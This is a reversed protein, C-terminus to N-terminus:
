LKCLGESLAKIVRGLMSLSLNIKQAEKLTDGTAESKSVKESGALDVFNLQSDKTNGNILKQHLKLIVVLHSRSSLSNMSTKRSVRRQAALDMLALFDM